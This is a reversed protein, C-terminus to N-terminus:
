LIKNLDSYDPITELYQYTMDDYNVRCCYHTLGNTVVLVPVHLAMNYRVIQDFSDQKINIDPAKCEVIVQAQGSNKYLVIDARKSKRHLQIKKEVAMLLAPYKKEYILYHLVNQRVWEEPTLAVYKKRIVDFIEQKAEVIRTKFLYEPLNLKIM